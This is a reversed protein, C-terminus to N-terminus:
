KSNAVRRRMYVGVKIEGGEIEHVNAVENVEGASRPPLITENYQPKYDTDAWFPHSLDILRYM